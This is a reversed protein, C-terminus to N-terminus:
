HNSESTTQPCDTSESSDLVCRNSSVTTTATNVFENADTVPSDSKVGLEVSQEVSQEVSVEDSVTPYYDVVLREVWLKKPHIFLSHVVYTDNVPAPKDLYPAFNYIGTSVLIKHQPIQIRPSLPDILHVMLSVPPLVRNYNCHVFYTWTESWTWVNHGEDFVWAADLSYFSPMRTWTRYGFDCFDTSQEARKIVSVKSAEALEEQVIAKMDCLRFKEDSSPYTIEFRYSFDFIFDKRHVFQSRSFSVHLRRLVDVCDQSVLTTSTAVVCNICLTLICVFLIHRLWISALLRRPLVSFQQTHRVGAQSPIETHM